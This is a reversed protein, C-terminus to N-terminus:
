FARGSGAVFVAKADRGPATGPTIEMGQGITSHAFSLVLFFYVSRARARLPSSAGPTRAGSPSTARAGPHTPSPSLLTAALGGVGRPGCSPQCLQPHGKALEEERWPGLGPEALREPREERPSCRGPAPPARNWTGVGVEGPRGGRERPPARARCGSSRPGRGEAPRRASRLRHLTPRGARDGPFAQGFTGLTLSQGGKSGPSRPSKGAEEKGEERRDRRARGTRRPLPRWPPYVQAPGSRLLATGPTVVVGLM